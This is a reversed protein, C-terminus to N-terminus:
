FVRPGFTGGLRWCRLRSGCSLSTDCGSGNACAAAVPFDFEGLYRDAAVCRSDTAVLWTRTSASLFKFLAAARILRGAGPNRCFPFVSLAGPGATRYRRIFSHSIAPPTQKSELRM